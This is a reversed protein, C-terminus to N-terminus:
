FRDGLFECICHLSFLAMNVKESNDASPIEGQARTAQNEPVIGGHLFM